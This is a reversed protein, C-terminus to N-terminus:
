PLATEDGLGRGGRAPLRVGEPITGPARARLVTARQLGAWAVGAQAGLDALGRGRGGGGREERLEDCRKRSVTSLRDATSRMLRLYRLKRSPDTECEWLLRLSIQKQFLSFTKVGEDEPTEAMRLADDACSLELERWHADGTLAHAAAYIMPLRQTEHPM